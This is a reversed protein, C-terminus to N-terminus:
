RSRSGLAELRARAEDSVPNVELAKEYESVAAASDGAAEHLAGLVVFFEERVADPATGAGLQGRVTEMVQGADGLRGLGILARARGLQGQPDDRIAVYADFSSLAEEYQLAGLYLRAVTLRYEPNGPDLEVAAELAELGAALRGSHVLADGYRYRYAASEWDLSAAVGFQDVATEWDNARAAEIGRDAHARALEQGNMRPILCRGDVSVEMPTMEAAFEFPQEPSEISVWEDYSWGGLDVTLPVPTRYIEGDQRIVGRVVPGARDAVVEYELSYAPLDGRYFWEYFFWDLPQGAADEFARVFSEFDVVRGGTATLAGLAECFPERGIVRELVGLVAAGKGGCIRRDQSADSGLCQRLPAPGGSDALARVYDARWGERLRHAQEEDGRAEHWGIASHGALSQAMLRGADLWFRWWSPALGEGLHDLRHGGGDPLEWLSEDIAVLGPGSVVSREGLFGTPVSVVNLWEYPYPGYCSELFRLLEKIEREPPSVGGSPVRPGEVWHYGLFVDGSVRLSSVFRGVVLTAAPVPTEASWVDGVVCRDRSADRLPAMGGLSGTCVSSYGEPYRVVIRFTAADYEPPCPYWCEETGLIALGRHPAGDDSGPIRGEYYVRVVRARDSPGPLLNIDLAAGTREYRVNRDGGTSLSSISLGEDLRLSLRGAPCRVRIFCQGGMWGRDPDVCAAIEYREIDQAALLSEARAVREADKTFLENMARSVHDPEGAGGPTQSLAALPVCAALLVVPLVANLFRM